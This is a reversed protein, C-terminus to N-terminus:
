GLRSYLADAIHDMDAVNGAQAQHIEDVHLQQELGSLDADPSAAGRVWRLGQEAVTLAAERAFV